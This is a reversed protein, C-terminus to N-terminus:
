IIVLVPAGLVIWLYTSCVQRRGDSHGILSGITSGFSSGRTCSACDIKDCDASYVFEPKKDLNNCISKPTDGVLYNADFYAKVLDEMSYFIDPITGTLLNTGLDLHSLESLKGYTLPISGTLKNSFLDLKVLSSFKSIEDPMKGALSQMSLDIEVVVGSRCTIGAWDCESTTSLWNSADNWSSGGTEYYIAALNYRQIIQANSKNDGGPCLALQDNETVFDLADANSGGVLARTLSKRNPCLGADLIENGAKENPENSSAKSSKSIKTVKIPSSAVQTRTGTAEIKNMAEAIETTIKNPEKM